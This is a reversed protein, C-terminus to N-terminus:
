KKLGYPNIHILIDASRPNSDNKSKPLFTM